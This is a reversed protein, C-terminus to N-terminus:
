HINREIQMYKLKRQHRDFGLNAARIEIHYLFFEAVTLFFCLTQNHAPLSM